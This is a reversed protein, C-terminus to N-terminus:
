KKSLISNYTKLAEEWVFEQSYKKLVYDRTVKKMKKVLEPKNILLNMAEFLESTSKPNILTGNYGDEIIENCGSIDSCISPIGMAAAEMISVGFGERYSPFVFIDMINLFTKVDRQSGVAIIKDNTVIENKTQIDLPDLDDEYPGVLLLKLHSYKVNLQKFVTVLENIGKDGVLRGVFGFVLDNDSIKYKERLNETHVNQKSFKEGNIGNASGNGIVFPTKNTIKNELLNDKIGFSVAVIDTAFFCTLRELCFLIWGKIGTDGEYRLGHVYYIRNPVNALWAATMSLLGGKPTNGHVIHPKVKIFLRILGYLSIIDKLPAINRVMKIGHVKVGERKGIFELLDDPNSVLEVDFVTNLFKIQGEFFDITKSITTVIIFKEKLM